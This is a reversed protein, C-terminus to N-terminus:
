TSRTETAMEAKDTDTVSSSRLVSDVTSGARLGFRGTPSASDLMDAADRGLKSQTGADYIADRAQRRCMLRPVQGFQKLAGRPNSPSSPTNRPYRTSRALKTTDQLVPASPCPHKPLAPRSTLEMLSKRDSIMREWRQWGQVPLSSVTLRRRKVIRPCPSAAGALRVFVSATGVVERGGCRVGPRGREM